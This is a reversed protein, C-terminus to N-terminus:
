KAIHEEALKKIADLTGEWNQDSSEYMKQTAIRSHNLHLVTKGQENRLTFRVLSYNEPSDATGSFESWYEYAFTRMPEWEVIKGKDEYSKGGWEFCFRMESGERWATELTVGLWCKISDQDTLVHWVSTDQASIEREKVITVNQNM